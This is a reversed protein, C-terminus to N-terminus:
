GMLLSGVGAAENDAKLMVCLCVNVGAGSTSGGGANWGRLGAFFALQRAVTVVIEGDTDDSAVELMGFLMSCEGDDNANPECEEPLFDFPDLSSTASVGVGLGTKLM